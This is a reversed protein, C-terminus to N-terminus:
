KKINDNKVMSVFIEFYRWLAYIMCFATISMLTIDLIEFDMNWFAKIGVITIVSIYFVITALKGYWQASPPVKNKKLLVAGALLMALEKVILLIMFPFIKPLKIGVCIMVAMLTLKDAIPDLMKGLASVQNFKRAIIGDFLDSLGSVILVAVAFTYNGKVAAFVFPFILVIRVVSLINPITLNSKIDLLEKM